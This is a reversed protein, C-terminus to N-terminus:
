PTSIMWANPNYLENAKSPDIHLLTRDVKQGTHQVLWNFGTLIEDLTFSCHGYRPIIVQQYPAWKNNALVKDTYTTAHWVPVIPDGTTHLVILPKKLAGTTEYKKDIRNLALKDATFRQVALNLLPDNASGVYQRDHNDFPQGDLKLVANNTAFANYWLVGLVTEGVTNPNMPDYPAQSVSLLQQINPLNAPNLLAMQIAPAYYSDWNDMVSQPISVASPPLVGPFFADFLV